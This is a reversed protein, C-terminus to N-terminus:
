AAVRWYGAFRHSLARVEIREVCGADNSAHIMVPEEGVTEVIGAHSLCRGYRFMAVDGPRPELVLTAYQKVWGLYREESRHFHWDPPYPRPDVQPVLGLDCFVRVLIMACDVGEGLVDGQHHYPTGLWRRAEAVILQERDM